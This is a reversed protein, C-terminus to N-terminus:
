IIPGFAQSTLPRFHNNPCFSRVQLANQSFHGVFGSRLPPAQGLAAPTIAPM